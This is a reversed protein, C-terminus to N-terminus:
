DKEEPEGGGRGNLGRREKSKGGVEVMGGRQRYAAGESV